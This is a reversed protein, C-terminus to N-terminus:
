AGKADNTIEKEQKQDWNNMSKKDCATAEEEKKLWCKKFSLNEWKTWGKKRGLHNRTTRKM